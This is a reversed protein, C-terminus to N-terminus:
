RYYRVAISRGFMDTVKGFVDKKPYQYLWSIASSKSWATHTVAKSGWQISVTYMIYEKTAVCCRATDSIYIATSAV